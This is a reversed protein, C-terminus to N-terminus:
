GPLYREVWGEDDTLAYETRLSAADPNSQWFTLRTPRVLFGIWTPPQAIGESNAALFAAWQARREDLPLQAFEESNQWALQKLYPSRAEFAAAIEEEPAVEAQGQVVLQRTFGPWLFTMAVAPNAAIDSVKRSRSDTHFYFGRADFESLLVTRADPAGAASVTSLTIQPREPIDNAPLWTSVLDWAAGTLLMTRSPVVGSM